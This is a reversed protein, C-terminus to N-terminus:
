EVAAAIETRECVFTPIEECDTTGDGARAPIPPLLLAFALITPLAFGTM